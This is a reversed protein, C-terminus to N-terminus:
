RSKREPTAGRHSCGPSSPPFSLFGGAYRFSQRSALVSSCARNGVGQSKQTLGSPSLFPPFPRFAGSRSIKFIEDFSKSRSKRRSSRAMGLVPRSLLFFFFFFFPLPPSLQEMTELEGLLRKSMRREGFLFPPPFVALLMKSRM